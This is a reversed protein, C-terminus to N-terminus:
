NQDLLFPSSLPSWSSLLPVLFSQNKDLLNSAISSNAFKIELLPFLYFALTMSKPCPKAGILIPQFSSVLVFDILHDSQSQTLLCFIILSFLIKTVWGLFFLSILFGKQRKKRQQLDSLRLQLTAKMQSSHYLTSGQIAGDLRHQWIMIDELSHFARAYYHRGNPSDEM